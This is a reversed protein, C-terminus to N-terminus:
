MQESKECWIPRVSTIAVSCAWKEQMQESKERQIPRVSMIAQKHAWKREKENYWM